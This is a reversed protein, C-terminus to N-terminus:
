ARVRSRSAQRRSRRVNRAAVAATAAAAATPARAPQSPGASVPVGLPASAPMGALVGVRVAVGVLVGVLVGALLGGIDLLNKVGAAAGLDRGPVLDPILRDLNPVLPLEDWDRFLFVMLNAGLEPDTEAMAHGALAVVAEVAGKLIGLTEEAVGFVVPVVPRGWRACLFSGDSRTFLQEIQAPTM